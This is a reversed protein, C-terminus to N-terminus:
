TKEGVEEDPLKVLDGLTLGRGRPKPIKEKPIKEESVPVLLEIGLTRELKRALKNDPAMKGTELKKLVSVKENTKRGLDEHSLGLKERASRIKADFGEVLELTSEAPLQPPRRSKAKLQLFKTASKERPLQTRRTKKEQVIQGHKVCRGCVTLNAGEIVANYSKSYIEHGCVECRM